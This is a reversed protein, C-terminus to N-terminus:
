QGYPTRKSCDHNPERLLVDAFDARIFRQGAEDKFVSNQVAYTIAPLFSNIVSNFSSKNKKCWELLADFDDILDSQPRFTVTSAM